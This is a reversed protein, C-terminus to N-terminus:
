ARLAGEAGLRMQGIGIAEVAVLIREPNLSDLLYYFGKRKASGTPNQFSCITSSCRM